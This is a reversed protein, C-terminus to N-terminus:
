GTGANGTSTGDKIKILTKQGNYQTRGDQSSALRAFCESPVHSPGKVVLFHPSIHWFLIAYPNDM